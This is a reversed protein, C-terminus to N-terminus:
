SQQYEVLIGDEVVVEMPYGDYCIQSSGFGVQKLILADTDDIYFVCTDAVLNGGSANWVPNDVSITVKNNVDDVAVVANVDIGGATYGSGSSLEAAKLAGPAKFASDLYALVGGNCLAAKVTKGLLFAAIAEYPFQQPCIASM